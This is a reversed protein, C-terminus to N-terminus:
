RWRAREPGSAQHSPPGLFSPRRINASARAPFDRGAILAGVPGGPGVNAKAGLFAAITFLPGPLAQAAGYGALFDGSSVWGPKVVTEQLLPLVVHGGGFVLAGRPHLCRLTPRSRKGLGRRFSAWVFASLVGAAGCPCGQARNKDRACDYLAARRLPSVLERYCRLGCDHCTAAAREPCRDSPCCCWLCPERAAQGSLPEAGHELGGARRSRRCAAEDTFPARRLGVAPINCGTPPLCCSFRPRCRSGLGAAIGGPLGGRLLGLAFGTQSSVPGPVFQSLAVIDAYSGATLWRRRDVFEVRFYGLHAIPGGFCTLGLRLFAIFIELTKSM